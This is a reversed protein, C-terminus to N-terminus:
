AASEREVQRVAEGLSRGRELLAPVGRAGAVAEARADATIVWPTWGDQGLCADLVDELMALVLEAREAPALVPALRGKARGLEKVPIALVRVCTRYGRGWAPPDTASNSGHNWSARPVSWGGTARHNLQCRSPSSCTGISPGTSAAHLWM